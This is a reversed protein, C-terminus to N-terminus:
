HRLKKKWQEPNRRRKKSNHEKPPFVKQKRKILSNQQLGSTSPETSPDENAVMPTSNSSHAPDTTMIHDINNIKDRNTNNNTHLITPSASSNLNSIMNNMTTDLGQNIASSYHPVDVASNIFKLTQLKKEYQSWVDLHNTKQSVNQRIGKKIDEACSPGNTCDFLRDLEQVVLATDMLEAAHFENREGTSLLKLVAAVTNSLIQAAFKVRM